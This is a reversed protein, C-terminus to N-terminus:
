AAKRLLEQAYQHSKVRRLHLDAQVLQDDESDWDWAREWPTVIVVGDPCVTRLARFDNRM